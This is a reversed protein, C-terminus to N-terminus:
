LWLAPFESRTVARAQVPETLSLRSGMDMVVKEASIESSRAYFHTETDMLALADNETNIVIIRVNIRRRASLALRGPLRNINSVELAAAAQADGSGPLLVSVQSRTYVEGGWSYDESNVAARIRTSAGDEWFEILCIVPDGQPSLNLRHRVADSALPM